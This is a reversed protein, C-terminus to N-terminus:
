LHQVQEIRTGMLVAILALVYSKILKETWINKSSHWHVKYGLDRQHPWTGWGSKRM